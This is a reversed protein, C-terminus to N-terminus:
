HPAKKRALYFGRGKWLDKVGQLDWQEKGVSPDAVDVKGDDRFGLIVVTHSVGPIWGWDQVYRPDVNQGPDLRVSIVAPCCGGSILEDISTPLPRPEWETNDTKIRLGRYLGFKTTGYESTFCLKAMEGESTNIGHLKLLTVAAAASCTAHTSQRCVEGKWRDRTQPTPRLLFGYCQWFCVGAGLLVIAIRKIYHGKIEHWGCGILMALAFPQLSGLALMNRWPFYQTLQPHDFVIRANFVIWSISLVVLLIRVSKSLKRTLAIFIAGLGVAIIWVLLIGVWVDLM